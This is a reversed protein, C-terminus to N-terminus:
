SYIYPLKWWGLDKRICQIICGTLRTTIVVTTWWLKITDYLFLQDLLFCIFSGQYWIILLPMFFSDNFNEIICMCIPIDIELFVKWLISLVRVFCYWYGQNSLSARNRWCVFYFYDNHCLAKYDSPLTHNQLPGAPVSCIAVNGWAGRGYLMSHDYLLSCIGEKWHFVSTKDKISKLRGWHSASPPEVM